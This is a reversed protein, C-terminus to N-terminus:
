LLGFCLQLPQIYHNVLYLHIDMQSNKKSDIVIHQCSVVTKFDIFMMAVKFDPLMRKRLPDDIVSVGMWTVYYICDGLTNQKLLSKIFVPM